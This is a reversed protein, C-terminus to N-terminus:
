APPVYGPHSQSPELDKLFRDFHAAAGPRVSELRGRIEGLVAPTTFRRIDSIGKLAAIAVLDRDVGAAKAAACACGFIAAAARPLPSEMLLMGTIAGRCIEIVAEQLEHEPLARGQLRALLTGRVVEAGVLVPDAINKIQGVVMEKTLQALNFTEM